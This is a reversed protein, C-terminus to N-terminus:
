GGLWGKREALELWLKRVLPMDGAADAPVPDEKTIAALAWSWHTRGSRLRDAILPVAVPGMAIIRQFASHQIIRATSSTHRTETEWQKALSNFRRKLLLDEVVGRVPLSGASDDTHHPPVFQHGTSVAIARGTSIRVKKVPESAPHASGAYEAFITGAVGADRMRRRSTKLIATKLGRNRDARKKRASRTAASASRRVKIGSKMHRNYGRGARIDFFPTAAHPKLGLAQRAIILSHPPRSM